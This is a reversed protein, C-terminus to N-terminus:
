AEGSFAANLLSTRLAHLTAARQNTSDLLVDNHNMAAELRGVTKVQEPLSPLPMSLALLSESKVASQGIWRNCIDQFVHRNWMDLLWDALFRADLLSGKVRIRTFHNSFVVPEGYGCFLASKGVLEISNTNNFVVDGPVLSYRNITAETAPVRLTQSWDLRGYSTVNNMRLQLVGHEDRDGSAFGSQAEAVVGKLTVVPWRPHTIPDLATQLASRRFALAAAQQEALAKEARDLCTMQDDLKAVIHQQNHLPPVPVLLNKYSSWKINPYTSSGAILQVFAKADRGNLYRWLWRPEVKDKAPRLLMMFNSCAIRGTLEHPCIATKGSRINTASGSSKVVLLDGEHAICELESQALYRVSVSEVDLNGDNLVNGVGLVQAPTLGEAQVDM